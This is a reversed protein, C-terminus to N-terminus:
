DKLDVYSILKVGRKQIEAKVKKSMFAKTVRARQQALNPNRLNGFGRLEPTDLSPYEVLL